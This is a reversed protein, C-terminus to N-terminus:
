KATNPKAPATKTKAPAVPTQKAPQGAAKAPAKAAAKGTGTGRAHAAASKKAHGSAVRARARVSPALRVPEAVYLVRGPKVSSTSLANWKRLEEISVNFRDAVTVLTDGARVTYRQPSAIGSVSAVPVVLEDDISMPDQPTIGNTRAIDAVKAHLSAAIGDLTEGAKVVHFRWSARRDEPIDKLRDAYLDKTGPPIHLDFDIDPPTSLRLMSPNLEVLEQVTAGTVDAVLRLDIAYDTHVTDYIVPPSPVLKDLGYREPNKAMLIAALIQPVYARTQAPMLGRRYFEWFDAYGTRQVDRQINGPGWNYAAMALYWDGFQNFLEKIYRAYARSSKEPDFRYDFYGNRTLGFQPGTYTMFQWM